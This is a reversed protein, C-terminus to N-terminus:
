LQLKGVGGTKEQINPFIYGCATASYASQQYKNRFSVERDVYCVPPDCSFTPEDDVRLKNVSQNAAPAEKVLQLSDPSHHFHIGGLKLGTGDFSINRTDTSVTLDLIPKINLNRLIETDDTHILINNNDRAYVSLFSALLTVATLALKLMTAIPLPIISPLRGTNILSLKTNLFLTSQYSFLM